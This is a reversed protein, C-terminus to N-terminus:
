NVEATKSDRRRDWTVEYIVVYRGLRVGGAHTERKLM